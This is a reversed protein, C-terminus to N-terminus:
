DMEPQKEGTGKKPEEEEATGKFAPTRSNQMIRKSQGRERQSVVVEMALSKWMPIKLGVESCEGSGQAVHRIARRSYRGLYGM